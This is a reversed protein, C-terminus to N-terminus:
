EDQLYNKVLVTLRHVIYKNSSLSPRNASDLIMISVGDNHNMKVIVFMWHTGTCVPIIVYEKWFINASKTWNRIRNPNFSDLTKAFVHASYTSHTQQFILPLVLKKLRTFFICLWQLQWWYLITTRVKTCQWQGGACEWVKIPIEHPHYFSCLQHMNWRLNLQM